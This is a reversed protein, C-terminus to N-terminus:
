VRDFPTLVIPVAGASTVAAMDYGRAFDVLANPDGTTTIVESGTDFGTVDLGIMLAGARSRAAAGMNVVGALPGVQDVFADIGSSTEVHM